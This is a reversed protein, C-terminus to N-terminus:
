SCDCVSVPLRHSDDNWVRPDLVYAPRISDRFMVCMGVDAYRWVARYLEGAASPDTVRCRFPGPERVLHTWNNGTTEGRRLIDTLIVNSPQIPGEEDSDHPPAADLPPTDTELEIDDIDMCPGGNEDDDEEQLLYDLLTTDSERTIEPMTTSADEDAAIM